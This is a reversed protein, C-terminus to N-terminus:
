KGKKDRLREPERHPELNLHDLLLDVYNTNRRIIGWDADRCRRWHREDEDRQEYLKRLKANLVAAWLFAIIAMGLALLAWVWVENTFKMEKEGEM